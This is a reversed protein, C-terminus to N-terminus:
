QFRQEISYSQKIQRAINSYDIINSPFTSVNCAFTLWIACLAVISRHRRIDSRVNSHIRIDSIHMRTFVFLVILRIIVCDLCEIGVRLM